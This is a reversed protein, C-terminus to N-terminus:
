KSHSYRAGDWTRFCSHGCLQGDNMGSSTAALLARARRTGLGATGVSHLMGSVWRRDRCNCVLVYQQAQTHIASGCVLSVRHSFLM